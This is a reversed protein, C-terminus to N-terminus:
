DRDRAHNAIIILKILELIATALAAVYTLAAAGLVKRIADGEERNVFGLDALVRKARASADFEVPLTILQFVVYASFLWIGIQLLMGSHIFLGIMFLIIGANTAFGTTGVVAMRMELPAYKEQHQIAHGAEHAAVGIASLSSM